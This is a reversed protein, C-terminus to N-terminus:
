KKEPQALALRVPVTAVAQQKKVLDKLTLRLEYAGIPAGKLNLTVNLFFERKYGQSITNVKMFNKKGFLEKGQADLLEVDMAFSIERSGDPLSKLGYNLPKMYIYIPQGRGPFVPRDPSAMLYVNDKRPKYIGYGKAPEAVLVTRALKLPLKEWLAEAARSIQAQAEEERGEKLSGLAEQLLAAPDGQAEAASTEAAPKAPAQDAGRAYGSFLLVAAALLTALLAPAGPTKRPEPM